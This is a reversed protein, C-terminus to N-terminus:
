HRRHRSSSRERRPSRSRRRHRGDDRHDRSRSRERRRPLPDSPKVRREGEYRSDRQSDRERDRYSVDHRSERHGGRPERNYERHHPEPRLQRPPEYHSEVPETKIQMEQKARTPEQKPRTLESMLEGKLEFVEEEDVNCVDANWDTPKLYKRFGLGTVARSEEEGAETEDAPPAAPKSSEARGSPGEEKKLIENMDDANLKTKALLLRKPKLGLAEKMLEDEMQKVSSKESVLSESAARGEKDNRWWDNKNYQGFKGLVGLKTSFGLYQGRDKFSQNKLSDWRFQELGGRVGERGSGENLDM